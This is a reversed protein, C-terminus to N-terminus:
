AAIQIAEDNAGATPITPRRDLQRTSPVPVRGPRGKAELLEEVVGRIQSRHLGIDALTRDDLAALQRVSQHRARAKELRSALRRAWTRLRVALRGAFGSAAGGTRGVISYALESRLRRAAAHHEAYEPTTIEWSNM